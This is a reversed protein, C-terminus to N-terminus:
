KGTRREISQIAPTGLLTAEGTENNFRLNYIETQGSTTRVTALVTGGNILANIQRLSSRNAEDAISRKLSEISDIDYKQVLATEVIATNSARISSNIIGAPACVCLLPAIFLFLVFTSPKVERKKKKLVYTLIISLAVVVVVAGIGGWLTIANQTNLM